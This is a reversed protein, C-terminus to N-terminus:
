PSNQFEFFHNKEFIDLLEENRANEYIETNRLLIEYVDEPIGDGSPWYHTM